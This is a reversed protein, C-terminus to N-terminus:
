IDENQTLNSNILREETPASDAMSVPSRSIEIYEFHVVNDQCEILCWLQTLGDSDIEPTMGWFWLGANRVNEMMPGTPLSAVDGDTSVNLMGLLSGQYVKKALAMSIIDM